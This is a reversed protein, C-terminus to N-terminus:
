INSKENIEKCSHCKISIWQIDGTYEGLKRNCIICRIEKKLNDTEKVEFQTTCCGELLRSSEYLGKGWWAKKCAPCRWCDYNPVGELQNGCYPCHEISEKPM